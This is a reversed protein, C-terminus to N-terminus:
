WCAATIGADIGWGTGTREGKGAQLMEEMEAELVQQLMEEVITRLLDQDERLLETLEEKWWQKKANDHKYSVTV